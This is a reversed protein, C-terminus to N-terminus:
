IRHKAFERWNKGLMEDLNKTFLDSIENTSSMVAKDMAIMCKIVNTHSIIAFSGVLSRAVPMVFGIGTNKHGAVVFPLRPGPVNSFGFTMKAGFDEIVYWRIFSPLQM